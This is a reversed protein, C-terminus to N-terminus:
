GANNINKLFLKRFKNLIRKGLIMVMKKTSLGYASGTSRKQNWLEIFLLIHDHIFQVNCSVDEIPLLKLNNSLVEIYDKTQDSFGMLELSKLKSITGTQRKKESFSSNPPVPQGLYTARPNPVKISELDLFRDINNLTLVPKEILKDFDIIKFQKPYKKEYFNALSDSLQKVYLATSAFLIDNVLNTDKSSKVISSYWDLSNRKTYIYYGINNIEFLKETNCTFARGSHNIILSDDIDCSNVGRFFLWTSAIVRLYNVENIEKNRLKNKIKKLFNSSDFVYEQKSKDIRNMTSNNLLQNRIIASLIVLHNENQFLLDTVNSGLKNSVHLEFPLSVVGPNGDLFFPVLSGGSRPLGGVM